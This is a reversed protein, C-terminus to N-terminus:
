LLPLFGLHLQQGGGHPEQYSTAAQLTDDMWEKNHNMSTTFWAKDVNVM